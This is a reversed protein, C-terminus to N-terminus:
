KTLLKKDLADRTYTLAGNLTQFCGTSRNRSLISM